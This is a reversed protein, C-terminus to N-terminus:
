KVTSELGVSFLLLVVGIRALMDISSDTALYELGHFGLLTLNGLVVGALLEGLVPPQNARAALHGGLKAVFLIIALSLVVGAVPDGHASPQSEGSQMAVAWAPASLVLCVLRLHGRLLQTTDSWNRTRSFTSFIM